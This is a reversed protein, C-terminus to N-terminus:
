CGASLSPPYCMEGQFTAWVCWRTYALKKLRWRHYKRAGEIRNEEQDYSLLQLDFRKGYALHTMDGWYRLRRKWQSKKKQRTVADKLRQIYERAKQMVLLRERLMVLRLGLGVPRSIRRQFGGSDGRIPQSKSRKEKEQCRTAPRSTASINEFTSRAKTQPRRNLVLRTTKLVKLASRMKEAKERREGVVKSRGLIRNKLELVRHLKPYAGAM